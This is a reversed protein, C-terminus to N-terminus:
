PRSLGETFLYRNYRGGEHASQRPDETEQFRLNRYLSEKEKVFAVREEV